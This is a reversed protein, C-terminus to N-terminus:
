SSTSTARRINGSESRRSSVKMPPMEIPAYPARRLPRLYQSVKPEMTAREEAIIMSPNSWTM